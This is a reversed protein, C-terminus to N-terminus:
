PGRVTEGVTETIAELDDGDLSDIARRTQQDQRCQWCPDVGEEADRDLHSDYEDGCGPCVESTM